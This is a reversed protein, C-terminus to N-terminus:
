APGVAVWHVTASTAGINGNNRMVRWRVQTSSVSFINCTDQQSISTNVVTLTVAPTASFATPFTIATFAGNADATQTEIGSQVLPGPHVHDSRSVEPSTGPDATTADALPDDDSLVLDPGTGGAGSVKTRRWDVYEDGTDTSIIRSKVANAYSTATQVIFTAVPVFETFPLLGTTLSLIETEAGERATVVTAYDNQGAVVVIGGSTENPGPVAFIHALVYDNNSLETLQWTAGTWENWYARGAPAARSVFSSDDDMRWVGSAGSRYLYPINDTSAHATITHLIDEDWIVGSTTTIRANDADNGTGDVSVAAPLIGSAYASGRTNHLYSHTVASMSSGHQECLSWPIAESNTADWYIYAVFCDQGILLPNFSTYEALQGNSDYYVFHDGETASIQFSDGTKHYKVGRGFFTYDGTLTLTRTANSFSLTCDSRDEFGNPEGPTADEIVSLRGGFNRRIDFLARREAPNSPPEFGTSGLPGTM